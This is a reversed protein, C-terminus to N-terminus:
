FPWGITCQLLELIDKKQSLLIYSGQSVIKIGWLFSLPDLDKISFTTNLQQIVKNIAVNNNEGEPLSSTTSMFWCTYLPARVHTFLSYVRCNPVHCSCSMRKKMYPLVIAKAFEHEMDVCSEFENKM